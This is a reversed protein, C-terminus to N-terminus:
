PSCGRTAWCPGADERGGRLVAEIRGRDSRTVLPQGPWSPTRTTLTTLLRGGPALQEVWVPPVCPVGIGSQM